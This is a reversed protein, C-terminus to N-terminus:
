HSAEAGLWFRRIWFRRVSREYYFAALTPWRRENSKSGTKAALGGAVAPKAQPNTVMLM